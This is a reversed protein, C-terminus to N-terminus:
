RFPEPTQLAQGVVPDITQHKNRLYHTTWHSPYTSILRPTDLKANELALYAFCSLNLATATDSMTDSFDQSNQAASLRDIFTPLVHHM